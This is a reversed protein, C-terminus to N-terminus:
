ITRWVQLRATVDALSGDAVAAEADRLARALREAAAADAQAVDATLGLAWAEARAAAFAERAHEAPSMDADVPAPPPPPACLAARAAAKRATLAATAEQLDSDLCM